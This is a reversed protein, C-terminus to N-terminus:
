PAAKDYADNMAARIADAPSEAVGRGYFAQKEIILHTDAQWVDDRDIIVVRVVDCMDCLWSLAVATAAQHAEPLATGELLRSNIPRAWEDAGLPVNTFSRVRAVGTGPIPEIQVSIRNM